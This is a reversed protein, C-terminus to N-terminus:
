WSVCPSSTCIHIVLPDSLFSLSWEQLRISHNSVIMAQCDIVKDTNLSLFYLSYDLASLQLLSSMSDNQLYYTYIFTYAKPFFSNWSLFYIWRIFYPFFGSSRRSFPSRCTRIPICKWSWQFSPTIHHTQVSFRSKGLEWMIDIGSRYGIKYKGSPLPTFLLRYVYLLFAVLVLFLFPTFRTLIM